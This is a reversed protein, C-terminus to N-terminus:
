RARRGYGDDDRHRRGYDDDGHRRGYDGGQPYFSGGRRSYDGGGHDDGSWGRQASAPAASFALIAM